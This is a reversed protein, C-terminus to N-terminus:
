SHQRETPAAGRPSRCATRDSSREATSVSASLAPSSPALPVISIPVSSRLEEVADAWSTNTVGTFLTLGPGVLDLTSVDDRGVWVHQIRGGLDVALETSVNRRSGLPDASREVNYAVAARREPEYTSLLTAPAWGCMVWALKWGLNWGDAIAINLGTGGRPTM